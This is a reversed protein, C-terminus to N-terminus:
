IWLEKNMQQMESLAVERKNAFEVVAMGSGQCLEYTSRMTTMSDMLRMGPYQSALLAGAEARKRDETKPRVQALLVWTQLAPNAESNEKIVDMLDPYVDFDLQNPRTPIVLRDAITLAARLEISDHGGCDVIIDDYDGARDLLQRYITMTRMSEYAVAPALAAERRRFAWLNSLQSKDADVLLVKKGAAARMAAANCANTTKSAGGKVGGFVIIM